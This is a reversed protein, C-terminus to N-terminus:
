SQAAVADDVTDHVPFVADLGTIELVELVQRIPAAISVTGGLMRARRLTGVLVGLGSSDLFSVKAMDLILHLPGNSLVRLLEERLTPATDLDIEGAISVIVRDDLRALAISLDLAARWPRAPVGRGRQQVTGGNWCM